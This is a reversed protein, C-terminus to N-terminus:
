WHYGFRIMSFNIGPNPQKLGGNSLHEFRWAMDWQEAHGFRIGFGVHTGFQFASGLDRTGIHVKSLLHAGFGGELYPRGWDWPRDREARLTPTLGLEYLGDVGDRNKYLYWYSLNAEWFHRWSWGNKAPQRPRDDLAYNFRLLRTDELGFGSDVTVGNLASARLPLLALLLVSGIAVIAPRVRFWATTNTYPM